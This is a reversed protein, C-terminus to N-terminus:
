DFHANILRLSLLPLMTVGVSAIFPYGFGESVSNWIMGLLTAAVILVPFIGACFVIRDARKPNVLGRPTSRLPENDWGIDQLLERVPKIKPDENIPYTGRFYGFGPTGAM